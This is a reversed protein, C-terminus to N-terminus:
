TRIKDFGVSRDDSLNTEDIPRFVANVFKKIQARNEFREFEDEEKDSDIEQLEKSSLYLNYRELDGYITAESM